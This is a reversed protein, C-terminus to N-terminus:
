TLIAPADTKSRTIIRGTLRPGTPGTALVGVANLLRGTVICCIGIGTGSSSSGTTSGCTIGAPATGGGTGVALTGPMCDGAFPWAGTIVAGLGPINGAGGGPCGFGYPAGVTGPVM